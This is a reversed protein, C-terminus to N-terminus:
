LRHLDFPIQVFPGMFYRSNSIGLTGSIATDGDFSLAARTVWSLVGSAM